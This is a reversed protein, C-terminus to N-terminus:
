PVVEHDRQKFTLKKKFKDNFGHIYGSQIRVTDYRYWSQIMATDNSYWSQIM